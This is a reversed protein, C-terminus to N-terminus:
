CIIGGIDSLVNLYKKSYFNGSHVSALPYIENEFEAIGYNLASKFSRIANDLQYYEKSKEKSNPIKISIQNQGLRQIRKRITEEILNNESEIIKQQLNKIHNDVFISRNNILIGEKSLSIKEIRKLNEISINSILNGKQTNIVDSNCCVAIDNLLNIGELDFKVAIPIIKLTKRDFNVKLTHIVEDSFGRAFIVYYEETKATLELFHHIESVSEVFGDILSVKVDFFLNEKILFLSTIGEFFFGNTVEIYSTNSNSTDLTIKSHISSLKISELILNKLKADGIKVIHDIDNKKFLRSRYNQTNINKINEFFFKSSYPSTRESCILHESLIDFIVKQPITLSNRLSKLNQLNIRDDKFSSEIVLNEIIKKEKNIFEQKYLNEV